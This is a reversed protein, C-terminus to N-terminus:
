PVMYAPSSRVPAHPYIPKVEFDEPVQLMSPHTLVITKAAGDLALDVCYRAGFCYGTAAFQAVGTEKLASIVRDLYPRTIEKSHRARWGDRDFGPTSMANEPIPDGAFYDPM